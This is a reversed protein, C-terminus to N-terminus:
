EVPTFDVFFEHGKSLKNFAAPNNITVKFGANPTWKAWQANESGEPGYVASLDVEESETSGDANIVHRVSNVRMKCRMIAQLM